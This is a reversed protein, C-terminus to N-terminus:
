DVEYAAPEWGTARIVRWRGGQKAFEVNVSLDVGQSVGHAGATFRAQLAAQARDGTLTVRPPELHLQFPEPQRFGSVVLRTIDRKRNVGDDYDESVHRLIVGANKTEVAQRIELIVRSIQADDPETPRMRWWAYGGVLAVLLALVALATRM